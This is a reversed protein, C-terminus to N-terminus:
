PGKQDGCFSVLMFLFLNFATQPKHHNKQEVWNIEIITGHSEVEGAEGEGSEFLFLDTSLFFVLRHSYTFTLWWDDMVIYRLLAMGCVCVCECVGDVVWPMDLGSLIPMFYANEATVGVAGGVAGGIDYSPM